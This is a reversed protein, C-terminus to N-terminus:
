PCVGFISVTPLSCCCNGEPRTSNDEDYTWTLEQSIACCDIPWTGIRHSATYTCAAWQLRAALVVHGITNRYIVVDITGGGAGCADMTFGSCVYHCRAAGSAYDPLAPCFESHIDACNNPDLLPCCAPFGLTGCAITTSDCITIACHDSCAGPIATCTCEPVSYCNAAPEVCPSDTWWCDCSDCFYMWLCEGSTNACYCNPVDLAVSQTWACFLSDALPPDSYINVWAPLDAVPGGETGTMDASGPDPACTIFSSEYDACDWGGVDDCPPDTMSPTLENASGSFSVGLVPIQGDICFAGCGACCGCAGPQYGYESM